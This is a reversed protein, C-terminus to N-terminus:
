SMWAAWGVVYRTGGQGGDYGAQCRTDPYPVKVDQAEGHGEVMVVLLVRVSLRFPNTVLCIVVWGGKATSMDRRMCPFRWSPEDTPLGRSDSRLLRSVLTALPLVAEFPGPAPSAPLVIGLV